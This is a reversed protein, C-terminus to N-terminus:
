GRPFGVHAAKSSYSSTGFFTGRLKVSSSTVHTAYFTEPAAPACPASAISSLFKRRRKPHEKSSNFLFSQCVDTFHPPLSYNLPTRLFKTPTTKTENELPPPIKGFCPSIYKFVKYRLGIKYRLVHLFEIDRFSLHLQNQWPFFLWFSGEERIYGRM